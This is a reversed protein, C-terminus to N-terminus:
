IDSSSGWRNIGQSTFPTCASPRLSISAFNAGFGIIALASDILRNRTRAKKEARDAM